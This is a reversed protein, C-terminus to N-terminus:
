LLTFLCASANLYVCCRHNISQFLRKRADNVTPDRRHKPQAYLWRLNSTAKLM